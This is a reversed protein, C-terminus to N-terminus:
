NSKFKARIYQLPQANFLSCRFSLDAGLQENGLSSSLSKREENNISSMFFASIGVCGNTVDSAIADGSLSIFFWPLLQQEILASIRGTSSARTKVSMGGFLVQQLGFTFATENDFIRYNVEAAIATKPIVSWYCSGKAADAKDNLAFSAMFTPTSFSCAANYQEFMGSSSDYFLHGGVSFNGFGAVASCNLVPQDPAPLNMGATIGGYEHFYRMEVKGDLPFRLGSFVRLGPVAGRIQCRSDVNIDFLKDANSSPSNPPYCQHLLERARKGIDNYIGPGTTSM